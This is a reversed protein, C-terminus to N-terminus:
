NKIIENIFEKASNVSYFIQFKDGYIKKAANTKLNTNNHDHRGKLEIILQVDNNLTILFDPIYYKRNGEYYYEILIQHKKTWNKIYSKKILNDLFIMYEEEWSSHYYEINNLISNYNGHKFQNKTQSTSQLLSVSLSIKEKWNKKKEESWDRIHNDHVRGPKHNLYPYEEKTRGTLHQSNKEGILKLSDNTEKTLGDNWTKGGNEYFRKLANSQNEHFSDTNHTIKRLDSMKNWFTEDQWLNVFQQSIMNSYEKSKVDADKFQERYQNTTLKHTHKLHEVISMEKEYGCILCKVM